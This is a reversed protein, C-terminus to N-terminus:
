ENIRKELQNLKNNLQNTTENLLKRIEEIAQMIPSKQNVDNLTKPYEQKNYELIIKECDEFPIKFSDAFKGTETISPDFNDKNFRLVYFNNDQSLKFYHDQKLEKKFFYLYGAYVTRESYSVKDILSINFQKEILEKM